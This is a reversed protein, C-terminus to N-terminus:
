THRLYHRERFHDEVHKYKRGYQRGIEVRYLMCTNATDYLVTQGHPPQSTILLGVGACRQICFLAQVCCGRWIQIFHGIQEVVSKNGDQDVSGVRILLSNPGTRLMFCTATPLLFSPHPSPSCLLVEDILREPRHFSISKM